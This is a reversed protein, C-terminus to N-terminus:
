ITGLSKSFKHVRSRFLNMERKERPTLTRLGVVFHSFERIIGEGGGLFFYYKELTDKRQLLMTIPVAAKKGGQVEKFPM